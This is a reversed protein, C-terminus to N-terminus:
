RVATPLYLFCVLVHLRKAKAKCDLDYIASNSYNTLQSKKQHFAHIIDSLMTPRHKSWLGLIVCNNILSGRSNPQRENTYSYDKTANSRIFRTGLRYLM